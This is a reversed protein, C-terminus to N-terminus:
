KSTYEGQFHTLVLSSRTGQEVLGINIKGMDEAM